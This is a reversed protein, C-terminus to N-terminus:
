GITTLDEQVIALVRGSELCRGYVTVCLVKHFALTTADFEILNGNGMKIERHFYEKMKQWHGAKDLGFFAPANAIVAM